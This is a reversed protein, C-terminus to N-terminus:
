HWCRTNSVSARPKLAIIQAGAAKEASPAIIATMLEAIRKRAAKALPSRDGEIKRAFEAGAARVTNMEDGDPLRGHTRAHDYLAQVWGERAARRGLDCQLLARAERKSQESWPDRKTATRSPQPKSEQRAEQPRAAPATPRTPGNARTREAPLPSAESAPTRRKEKVLDKSSGSERHVPSLVRIQVPPEQMVLDFQVPRKSVMDRQDPQEGPIALEFVSPANGKSREGTLFGSELLSGIARKVSSASLGTTAAITEVSPRIGKGDSDGFLRLTMAVLRANASLDSTLLTWQWRLAFPTNQTIRTLRLKDRM